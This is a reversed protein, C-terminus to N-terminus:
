LTEEEFCALEVGLPAAPLDLSVEDELRNHIYRNNFENVADIFVPETRDLLVIINSKDWCHRWKLFAQGGDFIVVDPNHNMSPLKRTNVSIIETKYSESCLRKVCLVDQLTGKVMKNGRNVAFYTNSIEDTIIKSNSIIIAHVFSKFAIELPNIGKIFASIFKSNINIEKGKQKNQPLKIISANTEQVMKSDKPAIFTVPAISGGELKIRLRPEGGFLDPGDYVAKKRIKGSIYVLPTGVPLNRLNEFHEMNDVKNTTEQVMATVAGLAVFCAAYARTPM